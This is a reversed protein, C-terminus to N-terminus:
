SSPAQTAQARPPLWRFLEGKAPVLSDNGSRPRNTGDAWFCPIVQESATVILENPTLNYRRPTSKEFSCLVISRRHLDTDGFSASGKGASV